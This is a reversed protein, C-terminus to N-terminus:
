EGKSPQNVSIRMIEDKFLEFLAKGIKMGRKAYYEAYIKAYLEEDRYEEGYQLKERYPVLAASWEANEIGDSRAEIRVFAENCLMYGGCGIDAWPLQCRREIEGVVGITPVTDKSPRGNPLLSKRMEDEMIRQIEYRREERIVFTLDVNVTRKRANIIGRKRIYQLEKERPVYAIFLGGSHEM